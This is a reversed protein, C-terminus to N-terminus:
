DIVDVRQTRGYRFRAFAIREHDISDHHQRIM